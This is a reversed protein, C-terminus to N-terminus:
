KWVCLWRLQKGTKKDTLLYVGYVSGLAVKWDNLENRIIINMSEFSHNVRDYSLFREGLYKHQHISSIKTHKFIYDPTFVTGRDNDGKYEIVLRGILESHQSDLEVTYNKGERNTINFIGGFLFKSGSIEEFDLVISVMADNTLEYGHVGSFALLIIDASNDQNPWALKFRLTRNVSDVEYGYIQYDHYSKM